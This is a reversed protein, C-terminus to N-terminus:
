CSKETFCHVGYGCSKIHSATSTGFAKKCASCLSLSIGPFPIKPFVPHSSTTTYRPAKVAIEEKIALDSNVEFSKPYKKTNKSTTMEAPIRKTRALIWLDKLSLSEFEFHHFLPRRINATIKPKIPNLVKM